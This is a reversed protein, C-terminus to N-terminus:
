LHGNENAPPTRMPWELPTGMAIWQAIEVTGLLNLLVSDSHVEIISESLYSDTDVSRQVVVIQPVSPATVGDRWVLRVVNENLWSGGVSIQDFLPESAGEALDDLFQLGARIDKDIAVGVVSVQAFSSGHASQLSERLQGVAQMMEPRTSWGCDSGALVFAILYTGNAFPNVAELVQGSELGTPSAPRAARWTSTVIYSAGGSTMLLIVALASRPLAPRVRSISWM